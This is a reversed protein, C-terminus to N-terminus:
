NKFKYYLECGYQEGNDCAQGFYDLAIPLSHKVGKGYLYNVGLSIQSLPDDLEAGKRFYSNAKHYDQKVLRGDDYVTGIYAMTPIDGLEAAKDLYTIARSVDVTAGELLIIGLMRYVDPKEDDIVKALYKYALSYDKPVHTGHYYITGLTYNSEIDGQSAAINFLEIAREIDNKLGFSGTLYSAALTRQAPAYGSQSSQNWLKLGKDIDKIDSIDSCGSLYIRGLEFQAPSSDQNAAQQLYYEAKQCDKGVIKGHYFALGLLLQHFASGDNALVTLKEIACEYNKSKSCELFDNEVKDSALSFVSISMLMIISLLRFLDM